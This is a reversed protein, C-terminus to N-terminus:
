LAVNKILFWKFDYLPILAIYIIISFLFTGRHGTIIYVILIYVMFQVSVITTKERFVALLPINKDSDNSSIMIRAVSDWETSGCVKMWVCLINTLFLFTRNSM